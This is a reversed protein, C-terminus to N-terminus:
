RKNPFIGYEDYIFEWLDKKLKFARENMKILKKILSNITDTTNKIEEMSKKTENDIKGISVFNDDDVFDSPIVDEEKAKNRKLFDFM